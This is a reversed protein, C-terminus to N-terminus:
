QLYFMIKKLSMFNEAAEMCVNSILEDFEIRRCTHIWSMTSLARRRPCTSTWSPTSTKRRPPEVEGAGVVGAETSGEPPVALLVEKVAEEAPQVAVEEEATRSGVVGLQEVTSYFGGGGGRTSVAHGRTTLGRGRTVIGRGRTSFGRLKGSGRGAVAAISPTGVRGKIGLRKKVGLAAMVTPRNAMQQALRREKQSARMVTAQRQTSAQVMASTKPRTQELVTFRENLSMKTTSKLVIKPAQFAAAM